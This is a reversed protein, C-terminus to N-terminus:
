PIRMPMVLHLYDPGGVPRFVGPSNPSQTELAVQDSNIVSLAEQLYKVNLALKGGEGDLLADVQELTEGVENATASLTLRGPQGARGEMSLTVINGAAQSFLAVRKVAKLLEDTTLVTRTTDPTAQPVFREYDPFKGDIVRSVFDVMDTHFIVQSNNNTVLMAVPEDTDGLTRGLETLARAPIVIDVTERAPEPLEITRVALRYGDIAAFTARTGSLRLLVGQLIPNTHEAAAALAVQGIVERLMGPPLLALPEAQADIVPVAPFEDAEIGKIAAKTGRCLVTLTQTRGDLELEVTDNPLNGILDTLLKAPVTVAGDEDIRAGVLVTISIELNNAALRLRGNETSLLINSLVPLTSRSAVAHSVIALGRKLNEQLCALRM